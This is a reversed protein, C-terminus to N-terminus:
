FSVVGACEEFAPDCFEERCAVCAPAMPNPKCVNSCNEMACVAAADICQACDPSLGAAEVLLIAASYGGVVALALLFLYALAKAIGAGFQVAFDDARAPVAAVAALALPLLLVPLLPRGRAEWRCLVEARNDAHHGVATNISM